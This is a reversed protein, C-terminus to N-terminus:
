NGTRTVEMWAGKKMSAISNDYMAECYAGPLYFRGAYSANLQVIFTKREGHMLNFYTYIRDDRIDQYDPYAQNEPIELDSLRNNMIEWGSPFIQTLALDRYDLMGPNYVTVAAVFDTGQTLQTVDVPNGDRTKYSVLLSINNNFEKEDGAEPIGTMIIRAFVTGQGKNTIAIHGAIQSKSVPLIIQTVTKSSTATIAKGNNYRYTFEMKGSSIGKAFKSMALLCYATSQTSMWYGSSLAGSIKRALDAGRTQDNLLTLTELMMAWDRERSGYSSYMGNYAQIDISERSILDRALASQGTLAYAAALRWKAQLSLTKIERLRNMAGTEPEGALALTFLRYAQELDDQRWPDKNQVPAWQRALQKQTRLWGSKLGAPLAYGKKEAELLFHGAYSNGWFNIQQYGPWYAFGGGSMQFSQLKSIGAKVNAETAAKSKEDLEMVDSLFLQPFAASTIQEICGHPYAILYRLWRGADIPPIGSVELIATNSGEMGPLDFETEWSKGAEAVGGSFTTVPPNPNRIYLEIEYTSTHKGSAAIVQVKGVGTKAAAKLHFDVIKDGTQSFTVSQTGSGDATLLDNTKVTLNVQKVQDDMAFVTVPLSVSEGPGLVRPLTALVMLPKRVPVTKETFGYAGDRGAVVMARVSGIYNPILIQHSNTRGSAVTFPGLYKVVPKFRNAKEASEGPAIDEDGGIGLISALKGGYAGIVADYLDWTKVGLAERAYFENWPDPTKFRTLDLLGEEVVALTYTMERRNKESVQITVKQLPELLDPMHIVPALKTKPDEVFIPIAGYLRMPMDNETNAHPQILTVYVYVNPAMEATIEFRHRIEKGTVKLWQKQLIHSGSEVTFLALGKDGTPISIEATEGVQYKPKDSNFTLMSAAEPNDRMPRGAWGPWDIFVIKGASHGSVPDVVRIYFRGWDPRDIRFSFKGIGNTAQITKSVIPRNYTNGVFDALEDGASEWWNRWDLKYVYAEMGTRSVPIGNENLVVVDVWHTTDTLLMGRKDGEPTKLGVYASYPSYPMTFRDISFDGSKEFVRTTFNVNLMGPSARDVRIRGPIVAKGNGDTYGEFLTQEEVDFSRAPDTFQYAAYKDFTTVAKTLSIAVSAKLNSAVAGHLWSVAMTGTLQPNSVSLRKADFQLDIKLRNPKVTEIRINKTFQTGGVKVRLNWGGTPADQPTSIAWSYFGNMGSSRTSRGFLQGKPNYLEFVVPHSEPLLKQRDELMFTLFLTDGPRWVGREGYLYGKIGKPVANGSVDFAGLSLSSGDDLRLYGRQKQYKAILLFTKERSVLSVFGDKDTVGSVVPQQQYNYLTVEVGEIPQATVLNTVACLLNQDTGAKVVIGLDSALINRAVWKNQNYYSPTCPNDRDEWNYDYDYEYYDEYYEEYSDWYSIEDTEGSYDESELEEEEEPSTGECPFLSYKRRFSIEVRYIAGPDPEILKALDLYFRNWRGLDAPAYNLSVTQKHVLRGARKLQNSGDLRNVQLFHGINNEFIKIIKVDVANLNVAEFPFVMGRTSPLIVGNGALRVAPKPVEFTIDAIYDQKLSYGLINELGEKVSIRSEGSLRTAPFAKIQNGSVTFELSTGNDLFILGEFNQKRKIPDSFLIQVYQEPQQIVKIDMVKYDSLSPIDVEYRGKIDKYDPAADWLIEVKGPQETRKVSDITFNFTRRDGAPEWVINLKRNDQRSSFFGKISEIDIVDSTNVAGKIRNWVLDNENHTQYGEVNIALAQEVVSFNFEFVALDKPVRLVKSLFFKATYNEGSKLKEKPRFELTRKDVWVAQGEIAPKFRFLGDGSPADSIGAVPLDDALVIQIVSESSIVGSTFAAIKETFAPNIELATKDAKKCQVISLLLFVPIIIIGPHIVPKPLKM